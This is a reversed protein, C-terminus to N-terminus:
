EDYLDDGFWDLRLLLRLTLLTKTSTALWVGDCADNDDINYTTTTVKAINYNTTTVTTTTTITISVYYFSLDNSYYSNYSYTSLLSTRIM